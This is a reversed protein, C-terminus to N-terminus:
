GRNRERQRRKYARKHERTCTRCARHRMGPSWYTNAEDYEHGNPCHTKERNHAGAGREEARIHEARTLSRLHWPNVCSARVCTHHLEHGPSIVGGYLEYAVVHARDYRQTERNWIQGYDYPLSMRPGTWVWCGMDEDIRVKERFRTALPSDM